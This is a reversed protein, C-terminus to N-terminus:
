QIRMWLQGDKIEIIKEMEMEEYKTAQSMLDTWGDLVESWFQIPQKLKEKKSLDKIIVFQKM